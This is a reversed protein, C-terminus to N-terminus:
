RSVRRAALELAEVPRCGGSRGAAPGQGPHVRHAASPGAPKDGLRRQPHWTLVSNTASAVVSIACGVAATTSHAPLARASGGAFARGDSTTYERRWVAPAPGDDPTCQM